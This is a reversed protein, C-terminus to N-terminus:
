EYKRFQDYMNRFKDCFKKCQEFEKPTLYGIYQGECKNLYDFLFDNKTLYKIIINYAIFNYSRRPYIKNGYKVDEKRVLIINSIDRTTSKLKLGINAEWHRCKEFDKRKTNNPLAYISAAISGIALYCKELTSFKNRLWENEEAIEKPFFWQKTRPKINKNFHDIENDTKNLLKNLITYLNLRLIIESKFTSNSFFEEFLLENDINEKLLKRKYKLAIYSYAALKDDTMVVFNNKEAIAYCYAEGNDFPLSLLNNKYNEVDPTIAIDHLLEKSRYNLINDKLNGFKSRVEYEYKIPYYVKIKYYKAENLFNLLLDLQDLKILIDTDFIMGKYKSQIYPFNIINNM